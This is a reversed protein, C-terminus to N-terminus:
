VKIKNKRTQNELMLPFKDCVQQVRNEPRCTPHCRNTHREFPGINGLRILRTFDIIGLNFIYLQEPMVFM